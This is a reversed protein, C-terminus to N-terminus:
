AWVGLVEASGGEHHWALSLIRCAMRDSVTLYIRDLAPIMPRGALRVAYM